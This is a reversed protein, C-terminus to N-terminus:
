YWRVQKIADQVFSDELFQSVDSDLHIDLSWVPVGNWLKLYNKGEIENMVEANNILDLREEM